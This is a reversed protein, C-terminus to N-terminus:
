TSAVIRLWHPCGITNLKRGGIYLKSTRAKSTVRSVFVKGSGATLSAIANERAASLYGIVPVAGQQAQAALPWAAAGLGAIFERRRV